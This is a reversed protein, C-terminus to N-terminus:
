AYAPLAVAVAGLWFLVRASARAWPTVGGHLKQAKPYHHRKPTEKANRHVHM